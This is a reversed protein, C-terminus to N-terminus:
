GCASGPGNEPTKWSVPFRMKLAGKRDNWTTGKIGIEYGEAELEGTLLHVKKMVDDFAVKIIESRDLNESLNIKVM